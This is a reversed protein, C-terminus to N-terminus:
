LLGELAGAPGSFDDGGTPRELHPDRVLQVLEVEPIPGVLLESLKVGPLLPPLEIM